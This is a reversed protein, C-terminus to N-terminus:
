RGAPAVVQELDPGLAITLAGELVYFVDIHRRHVHPSAGERWPGFRSWTAHLEDRDSLMEVTRVESDGMVEGAGAPVFVAQAVDLEM